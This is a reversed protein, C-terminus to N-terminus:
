GNGLRFFYLPEEARDPEAVFRCLTTDADIGVMTLPHGLVKRVYLTQTLDENKVADALMEAVAMRDSNSARMMLLNNLQMLSVGIAYEFPKTGRMERCILFAPPYGHLRPNIVIHFVNLRNFRHRKEEYFTQGLDTM